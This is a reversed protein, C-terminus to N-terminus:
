NARSLLLADRRVILRPLQKFSVIRLLADINNPLPDKRKDKIKRSRTKSASDTMSQTTAICRTHNFANCIDLLTVPFKKSETRSQM